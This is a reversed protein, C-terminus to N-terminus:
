SVKEKRREEGGRKREKGREKRNEKEIQGGKDPSQWHDYEERVGAQRENKTNEERLVM